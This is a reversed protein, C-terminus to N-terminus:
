ISKNKLYKLIVEAFKEPTLADNTLLQNNSLNLSSLIRAVQPPRVFARALIDSELFVESTPGDLIIRGESMVVTRRAYRAVIEMEHTIIIVTHGRENLRKLFEMIELSQRWDQGTTPEDIILIKPRLALISGIAIRQRLGKPLFFPSQNFHEESLGVIKAAELVRQRVEDEPLLLNRPGFALEDFVTSNFIQHDPNQFVYGVSTALEKVRMDKTDRGYILIRGRAPKLLGAICKALTTKGSGNQGILGIFEGEDVSLSVGNLALTGDRYVYTLDEVRIAERTMALCGGLLKM